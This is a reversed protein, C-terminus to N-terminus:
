GEVCTALIIIRRGTLEQLFNAWMELQFACLCQRLQERVELPMEHFDGTPKARPTRRLPQFLMVPIPTQTSGLLVSLNLSSSQVWYSEFEVKHVGLLGSEIDNWLSAFECGFVCSDDRTVSIKLLQRNGLSEADAIRSSSQHVLNKAGSDRPRFLGRSTRSHM